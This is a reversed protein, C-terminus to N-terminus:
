RAGAAVLSVTIARAANEQEYLVNGPAVASVQVTLPLESTRFGKAEVRVVYEGPTLAGSAYTGASTTSTTIVQGTAKNTITIRAGGVVAGSPDTVTGLITGTSVTTQAQVFVSSAFLIVITLLSLTFRIPIHRPSGSSLTMM